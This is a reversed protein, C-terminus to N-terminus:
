GRVGSSGLAVLTAMLFYIFDRGGFGHPLKSNKVLLQGNEKSPGVSPVECYVSYKGEGCDPKLLNVKSHM